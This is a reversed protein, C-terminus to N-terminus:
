VLRMELKRNDLDVAEIRVKLKDGLTFFKGSKEGVIRYKKEDLNWYDEGLKSIHIMGEAGTENLVVFMGFPAVGSIIGEFEEGVHNMMFETQKYKRPQYTCYIERQNNKHLRSQILKEKLYMTLLHGPLLLEHNMLADANDAICKGEAFSFLKRIMLM